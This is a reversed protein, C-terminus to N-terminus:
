EKPQKDVLTVKKGSMDSWFGSKTEGYNLLSVVRDYVKGDKSWFAVYSKRGDQYMPRVGIPLDSFRQSMIKQVKAPASDEKDCCILALIELAPKDKPMSKIGKKLFDRFYKEAETSPFNDSYEGFVLLIRKYVDLDKAEKLLEIM